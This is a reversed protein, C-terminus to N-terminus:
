VFYSMGQRWVRSVSFRVSTPPWLTESCWTDRLTEACYLISGCFNHKLAVVFADDWFTFKCDGRRLLTRIKQFTFVPTTFLFDLCHCTEACNHIGWARASPLNPARDWSTEFRKHIITSNCCRVTEVHLLTLYCGRDTLSSEAKNLTERGQRPGRM